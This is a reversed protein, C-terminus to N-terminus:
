KKGAKKSSKPEKGGKAKADKADAKKEDTKKPMKPTEKPPPLQSSNENTKHSKQQSSIERWHQSPDPNAHGAPGRPKILM